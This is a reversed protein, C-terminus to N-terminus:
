SPILKLAKEIAKDLKTFTYQNWQKCSEQKLQKWHSVEYRYLERSSITTGIHIKHTMRFWYIVQTYLPASIYGKSVGSYMVGYNQYQTHVGDKDYLSTLKGINFFENFGKEKLLVAINYPVFLEQPKIKKPM